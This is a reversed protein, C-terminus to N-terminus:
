RRADLPTACVEGSRAAGAPDLHLAGGSRVVQVRAARDPPRHRRRRVAPLAERLASTRPSYSAAPPRIRAGVAPDTPQTPRAGTM